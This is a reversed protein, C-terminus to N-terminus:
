GLIRGAKNEERPVWTFGVPHGLKRVRESVKGALVQLHKQKIAYEGNLQRVILQSDSVIETAEPHRYLGFLVARYEAVNNTNTGDIPARDVKGDAVCCVEKPSGDVYIRM